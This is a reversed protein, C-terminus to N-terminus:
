PIPYPLSQM